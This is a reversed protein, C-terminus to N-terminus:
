VGLHAEALDRLRVLHQCVGLRPLEVVAVPMGTEAGAAERRPVEIEAVDAVQEAREEAVVQEARPHAARRAPTVDGRLDLDLQGVGRSTRGCGNRNLDRHRARGAPAVAHLRARPDRRTRPAIAAAPQLLHRAAHEALEDAGRRTRPAAARAPEDLMR